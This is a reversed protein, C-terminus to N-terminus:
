RWTSASRLRLVLGEDPGPLGRRVAVDAVVGLDRPQALTDRARQLADLEHHGALSV